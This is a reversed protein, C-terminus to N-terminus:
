RVESPRASSRRNARQIEWTVWRCNRKTYHGNPNRRDLTKGKPRKGMDAFFAAFSKRWRRCVKIGRGGYYKWTDRKLNTCRQIMNTWATYEPSYGKLRGGHKLRPHPSQRNRKQTWEINLCGCSRSSGFVLRTGVVEKAKGCECVCKWLSRRGRIGAFAIVRWRGFKRGVLDLRKM